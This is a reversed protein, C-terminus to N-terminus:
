PAPTGTAPMAAAQMAALFHVTAPDAVDPIATLAVIQNGAVILTHIIVIRDTGVAAIPDSAILDRSVATNLVVTPEGFTAVLGPNNQFFGAEFARIEKPGRFIGFPSVLVADPAFLAAFADPDAAQVAQALAAHVAAPEAAAPTAEQAVLGPAAALALAAVLLLFSSLVIVRRM